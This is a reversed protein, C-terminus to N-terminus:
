EELFHCDRLTEIWARVDPLVEEVPKRLYAAALIAAEEETFERGALQQWLWESTENLGAIRILEGDPTGPSVVVKMDAMPRIKLEAKIRMKNKENITTEKKGETLQPGAPTRESSL